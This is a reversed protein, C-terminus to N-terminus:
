FVFMIIIYFATLVINLCNLQLKNAIIMPQECLLLINLKSLIGDVHKSNIM